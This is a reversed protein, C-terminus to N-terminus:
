GVSIGCAIAAFSSAPANTLSYRSLAAVRRGVRQMGQQSEWGGGAQTNGPEHAFSLVCAVSQGQQQRQRTAKAAAVQLEALCQSL